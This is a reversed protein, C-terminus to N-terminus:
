CFRSSRWQFVGQPNALHPQPGPPRSSAPTARAPMSSVTGVSPFESSIKDVGQKRARGVNQYLEWGGCRGHGLVPRAGLNSARIVEPGWYAVGLPSPLHRLDVPRPGGTRARARMDIDGTRGKPEEPVQREATSGDQPTPNQNQCACPCM